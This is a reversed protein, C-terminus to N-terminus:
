HDSPVPIQPGLSQFVLVGSVTFERSPACQTARQGSGASNLSNIPGSTTASIRASIMEM